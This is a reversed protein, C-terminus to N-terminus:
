REGRIALALLQVISTQVPSLPLSLCLSLLPLSLSSLLSLSAERNYVIPRPLGTFLLDTMLFETQVGPGSDRGREANAISEM